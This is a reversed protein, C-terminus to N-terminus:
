LDTPELVPVPNELWFLGMKWGLTNCGHDDCLALCRGFSDGSAIDAFGAKAFAAVLPM